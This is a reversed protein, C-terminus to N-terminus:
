PVMPEGVCRTTAATSVRITAAEMESPMKLLMLVPSLLPFTGCKLVNSSRSMTALSALASTGIDQSWVVNWFRAPDGGLKLKLMLWLFRCHAAPTM